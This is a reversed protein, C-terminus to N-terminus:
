RDSNSSLLKPFYQEAVHQRTARKGAGKHVWSVLQRECHNEYNECQENFKEIRDSLKKTECDILHLFAEYKQKLKDEKKEINKQKSEFFKDARSSINKYYDKIIDRYNTTFNAFSNFKRIVLSEQCQLRELTNTVNESM